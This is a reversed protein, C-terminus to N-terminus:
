SYSDLCTVRLLNKDVNSMKNAKNFILNKHQQYYDAISTQAQDVADVKM